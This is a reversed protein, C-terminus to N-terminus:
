PAYTFAAAAPMSTRIPIPGNQRTHAVLAAVVQNPDGGHVNIVVHAQNGGPAAIPGGAGVAGLGAGVNGVTATSIAAGSPGSAGSDGIKPITFGKGGIIPVWSPVTFKFGGVTHNWLWKIANMALKFPATIANGIWSFADGIPKKITEWVSKLPQILWKDIFDWIAKAVKKIHDWIWNWVKKVTNWVTHWHTVLLVILLIIGIIIAGIGTAMLAATFTSVGAAAALWGVGSAILGAAAAGAGAAMGWLEAIAAIAGTAFSAMSAVLTVGLATALAKWVWKHNNAYDVFKSFKELVNSIAPQLKDGLGKSLDTAKARAEKLKGAYTEAAASAQGKLRDGLTKLVTKSAGQVSQLKHEAAQVKGLAKAYAAHGQAGAQAANPFNAIVAAMTQQAATVKDQAQQLKMASAQPIAIDIGLQKLVRSNGSAAKDVALMAQNLDIGKAAALDLAIPLHKMSETVSGTSIVSQALAKNIQASTMGFKHYSGQVKAVQGEVKDWSGGAGEVSAKLAESAAAYDEASKLSFAAIAAGASLAAMGVQKMANKFIDKMHGTKTQFKEMHHGMTTLAGAGVIDMKEFQEGVKALNKGIRTSMDNFQNAIKSTSRGTGRAENETVKSLTSKGAVVVTFVSSKSAM